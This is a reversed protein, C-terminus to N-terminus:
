RARRAEGRRAAPKGAEATEKAWQSADGGPLLPLAQEERARRTRAPEDATPERVADLGCPRGASGRRPRLPAFGDPKPVSATGRAPSRPIPRCRRASTAASEATYEVSVTVSSRARRACRSPAPAAPRRPTRITRETGDDRRRARDRCPNPRVTGRRPLPRCRSRRKGRREAGRRRHDVHAGDQHAPAGFRSRSRFRPRSASWERSSSRDSGVRASISRSARVVPGLSGIGFGRSPRCAQASGFAGRRARARDRPRIVGRLGRRRAGRLHRRDGRDGGRRSCCRGSVSPYRAAASRTSSRPARAGVRDSLWGGVFVGPVGLALLLAAWQSATASADTPSLGRLAFAAALFAALWARVIFLEWSHGVYAAITRVLPANRLVRLDLHAREGTTQPIGRSSIAAVPLAALGIRRPHRGCRAVRIARAAIGTALFSLSWRSLVGRTSASQAGEARRIPLKRSSVCARCTSV